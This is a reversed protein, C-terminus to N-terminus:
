IGGIVPANIDHPVSNLGKGVLLDSQRFTTVLNDYQIFSIPISLCTVKNVEADKLNVIDHFQVM